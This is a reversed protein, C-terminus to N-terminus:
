GVNVWFLIALISYLIAFLVPVWYEVHTLPLYLKRNKGKGLATWEAAYPKLPLYKEMEGIITYKGSNLQRYSKVIRWWVFCLLLVAIFPPLIGFTSIKLKPALASFVTVLTTNIGLFFSNALMRRASIRDAMEVYLKYQEFFHVNYNDGYTDRHVALLKIQNQENNQAPM